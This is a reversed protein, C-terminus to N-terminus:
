GRVRKGGRPAHSPQREADQLIRTLQRYSVRLGRDKLAKILQPRTPMPRRWTEASSLLFFVCSRVPDKKGRDISNAMARFFSGDRREFAELVVESIAAWAKAKWEPLSQRALEPMVGEHACLLELRAANHLLSVVAHAKPNHDDGWEAWDMKELLTKGQVEAAKGQRPKRGKM